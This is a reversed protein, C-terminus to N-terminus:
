AVADDYISALNVYTATDTSITRSGMLDPDTTVMRVPEPGAEELNSETVWSRYRSRGDPGAYTTESGFTTM